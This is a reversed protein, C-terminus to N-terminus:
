TVRNYSAVERSRIDDRIFSLWYHKNQQMTWGRKFDREFSYDIEFYEAGAEAKAHRAMWEDSWGLM